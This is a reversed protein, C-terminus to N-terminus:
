CDSSKLIEVGLPCDIHVTAHCHEGSSESSVDKREEEGVNAASYENGKDLNEGKYEGPQNIPHNIDGKHPILTRPNFVYFTHISM